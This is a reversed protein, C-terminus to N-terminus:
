ELELIHPYKKNILFAGHQSQPLIRTIRLKKGSEFMVFDREEFEIATESTFLVRDFKGKLWNSIPQYTMESQSLHRYKFRYVGNLNLITDTPVTDKIQSNVDNAVTKKILYAVLTEGAGINAM